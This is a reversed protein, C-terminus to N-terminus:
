QDESIIRGVGRGARSEEEKGSSGFPTAASEAQRDVIPRTPRIETRRARWRVGIKEVDSVGDISM